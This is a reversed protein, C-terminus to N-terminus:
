NYVCSKINKSKNKHNVISKMLVSVFYVLGTSILTLSMINIKAVPNGFPNGIRILIYSIIYIMELNRSKRLNVELRISIYIFLITFIPSLIFGFYMYGYGSSSIVHGTKTYRGYIQSNFVENTSLMKDKVFFSIGITSRVFDYIPRHIENNVQEKTEIALAVNSPGYFYSQLTRSTIEINFSSQNLAEKYSDHMFVNLTKYISMLVLVIGTIAVLSVIIKKKHDKFLLCLIYICVFGTYLLFSRREGIIVSICLMSIILAIYIYRIRPKKMYKQYMRHVSMLFGFMIASIFIQRIIMMMSTLDENVRNGTNSKIIFFSISERAQPILFFLVIALISLMIYVAKEGRLKYMYINDLKYNVKLYRKLFINLFLSIVVIEYLMLMIALRISDTSYLYRHTYEYGSTFAITIPMLIYRISGYFIYIGLVVSKMNIMFNNLFVLYSIGFYLPLLFLMEYGENKNYILTVSSSFICLLLILIEIYKMKKM